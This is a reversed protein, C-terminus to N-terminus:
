STSSTATKGMCAGGGDGDEGMKERQREENRRETKNEKKVESTEQFSPFSVAVPQM